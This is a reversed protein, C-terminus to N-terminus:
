RGIPVWLDQTDGRRRVRVGDQKIEILKYPGVTEGASFLDNNIVAFPHENAWIVGAIALDGKRLSSTTAGQANILPQTPNRYFVADYGDEQNSLRQYESVAADLREVNKAYSESAAEAFRADATLFVALLLLSLFRKM